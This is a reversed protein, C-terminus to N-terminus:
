SSPIAVQIESGPPPTHMLCNAPDESEEGEGSVALSNGDPFAVTERNKEGPTSPRVKFRFQLDAKGPRGPRGAKISRPGDLDPQSARGVKAYGLGPDPPKRIAQVMHSDIEVSVGRQLLEVEVVLRLQKGRRIVKGHLGALSGFLIEVLSGPELREEPLLPAGSSILRYVRALDRHLGVQDVVSLCRSVLGTELAHWRAETAGHLFVYGPFLPLYSCRMRGSSSPWRREHLPLFFGVRRALLRRALAKEARARTYVVLWDPGAEPSSGDGSFLTDPFFSPESSLLPMPSYEM